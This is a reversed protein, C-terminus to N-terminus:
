KDELFFFYYRMVKEDLGKKYAYIFDGSKFSGSFDKLGYFRNFLDEVFASYKKHNCNTKEKVRNFKKFALLSLEKLIGVNTYDFVNTITKRRNTSIHTCSAVSCSEVDISM